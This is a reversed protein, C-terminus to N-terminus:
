KIFGESVVGTISVGQEEDAAAGHVVITFDLDALPEDIVREEAEEGRGKHISSEADAFLTASVEDSLEAALARFTELLANAMEPGEITYEPHTILLYYALAKPNVEIDANKQKIIDSLVRCIGDKDLQVYSLGDVDDSAIASYLHEVITQAADPLVLNDKNLILFQAYETHVDGTVEPHELARLFAANAEEINGKAAYFCALKHYHNGYQLNPDVKILVLQCNIVAPLASNKNAISLAQFQLQIFNVSSFDIQELGSNIQKYFARAQDQNDELLAQNGLQMLASSHVFGSKVCSLTKKYEGKCFYANGLSNYVGVVKPHSPTSAYTVLQIDLAKQFYEIAVDYEGKQGYANGLSNHSDAISPHNPTSAYAVKYIELAKNHYEIAAAYEGKRNCVAGLNNYIRTIEPHNPTSVYAVKYIELAKNHYEIAVDYKEKDKYASGLNNYVMAIYPHNPASAYLIKFIDLGKHHCEIAADYEGKQVYANGLNIYGMAIYQHSLNNAQNQAKIVSLMKQGLSIVEGIIQTRNCLLFLGQLIQLNEPQEAKAAEMRELAQDYELFRAHVMGKNYNSNDYLSDSNLDMEERDCLNENCFREVVEQVKLMVYYFHHLISTGEIHFTKELLKHKAEKTLHEVAPIYTSMGEGQAENNAYTHLRLETAISLAEKLHQAGEPSLKRQEQMIDIMQWLTVLPQEQEAIIDYYDALASVVRDGLRYMDKKVDILKGEEEDGLKLSFKAVDEKLIELNQVEAIQIQAQDSTHLRDRYEGLLVQSGDILAVSRLAQILHKDTTFTPTAAGTESGFRWDALQQPTLILEYDPKEEIITEEVGQDNKEKRVAKYGQRGLPHKCAHWDPGDFSFGSDIIDDWFWDDAEDATRFDNLSEIGVSRLPTEGLNIIKIHLLKTLNRFYERYEERDENILVAFELDSM